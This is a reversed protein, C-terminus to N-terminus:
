ARHRAALKPLTFEALREGDVHKRKAVRGLAVLGINQGTAADPIQGCFAGRRLWHLRM